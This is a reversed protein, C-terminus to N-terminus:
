YLVVAMEPQQMQKLAMDPAEAMNQTELKPRFM